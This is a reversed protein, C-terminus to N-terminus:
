IQQLSLASQQWHVDKLRTGFSTEHLITNANTKQKCKNNVMVRYGLLTLEPTYISMNTEIDEVSGLASAVLFSRFWAGLLGLLLSVFFRRMYSTWVGYSAWLFDMPLWRFALLFSM